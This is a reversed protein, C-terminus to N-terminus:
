KLYDVLNYKTAAFRIKNLAKNETNKIWDRNKGIIVEIEPRTHSKECDIGHRLKIVQSEEESLFKVFIIALIDNLDQQEALLKIDVPAAILDELTGAGLPDPIQLSIIKRSLELIERIKNPNLDAQLAINRINRDEPKLKAQIKVINYRANEIYEPLRIARGNVKVARRIKQSIWQYALTSFRNGRGPDFKNAANQLGINGEQILDSLTVGLGQYKKAIPIVLRLNGTILPERTKALLLKLRLIDKEHTSVELRQLLEQIKAAIEDEEACNMKKYKAIENLYITLSDMSFIPLIILYISSYLNCNFLNCWKM